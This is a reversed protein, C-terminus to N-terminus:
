LFDELIDQVTLLWTSRAIRKHIANCEPVADSSFGFSVFLGRTGALNMGAAREMIAEFQDIDRRCARLKDFPGGQGAAQHIPINPSCKIPRV